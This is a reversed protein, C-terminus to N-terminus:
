AEENNCYKEILYNEMSDLDFQPPGMTIYQVCIGDFLAGLVRSELAPNKYGMKEFLNAALLLYGEAKKEILGKIFPFQDMQLSLGTLLKMLDPQTRLMGFTARIINRMMTWPDPDAIERWLVEGVEMYTEIIAQVLDEKSAYYNYVLGKSVGAHKAIQSVSVRDYGHTAFLELAAYVLKEKSKERIEEFQKSSRPAM